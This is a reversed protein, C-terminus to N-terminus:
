RRERKVEPVVDDRAELAVKLLLVATGGHLGRCLRVGKEVVVNLTRFGFM